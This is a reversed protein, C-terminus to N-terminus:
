RIDKGLNEALVDAGGPHVPIFKTVDYVTGGIAVWGSDATKHTAVEKSTLRRAVTPHTAVALDADAESAVTRTRAIKIVIALSTVLSAM